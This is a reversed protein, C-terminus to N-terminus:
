CEEHLSVSRIVRRNVWIQKSAPVLPTIGRRSAAHEPLDSRTM